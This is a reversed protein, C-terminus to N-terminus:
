QNICTKMQNIWNLTCHKYRKMSLCIKIDKNTDCEKNGPYHISLRLSMKFHFFSVYSCIHIPFNFIILMFKSIKILFWRFRHRFVKTVITNIKSQLVIPTTDLEPSKARANWHAGLVGIFGWIFHWTQHLYSKM